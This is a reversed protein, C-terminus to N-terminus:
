VQELKSRVGPGHKPPQFRVRQTADIQVVNSEHVTIQVFGFSLSDVHKQVVDLWPSEDSTPVNRNAVFDTTRM